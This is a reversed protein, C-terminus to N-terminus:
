TDEFPLYRDCGCGHVGCSFGVKRSKGVVIAASVQMELILRRDYETPSKSSVLRHWIRQSGHLPRAKLALTNHYLGM